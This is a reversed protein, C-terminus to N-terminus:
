LKEGRRLKEIDRAVIEAIVLSPGAFFPSTQNMKSEPGNIEAEQQENNDKRSPPKRRDGSLKRQGAMIDDSLSFRPIDANQSDYAKVGRREPVFSPIVNEISNAKRGRRQPSDKTAPQNPKNSELNETRDKDASM